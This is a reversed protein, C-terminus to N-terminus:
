SSYGRRWFARWGAAASTHMLSTRLVPTHWPWWMAASETTKEACNDRMNHADDIMNSDKDMTDHYEGMKNSFEDMMNFHKDMMHCIKGMM